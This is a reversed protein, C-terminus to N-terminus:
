PSPSDGPTRDLPRGSAWGAGYPAPSARLVAQPRTPAPARSDPRPLGVIGLRGLAATLASPSEAELLQARHGADAMAWWHGTARGFWIVATPFKGELSTLARTISQTPDPDSPHRIGPGPIHPQM